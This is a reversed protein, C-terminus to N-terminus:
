YSFYIFINDIMFCNVVYINNGIAGRPRNECHYKIDRSVFGGALKGANIDLIGAGWSGGCM